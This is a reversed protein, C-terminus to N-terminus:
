RAAEAVLDALALNGVLKLFRHSPGSVAVVATRTAALQGLVWSLDSRDTALQGYSDIVVADFAWPADALLRCLGPREWLRALSQDAYTAVHRWGPRTAVSAALTAIRRDLRGRGRRGPAERAYLAVRQPAPTTATTPRM